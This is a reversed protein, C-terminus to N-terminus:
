DDFIGSLDDPLNDVNAGNDVVDRAQQLYGRGRGRMVGWSISDPSSGSEEGSGGAAGGRNLSPSKGADDHKISGDSSRAAHIPMQYGVAPIDLLPDGTGDRKVEGGTLLLMENQSRRPIPLSYSSRQTDSLSAVPRSIAQPSQVGTLSFLGPLFSPMIVSHTGEQLFNSSKRSGVPADEINFSGKENAEMQTRRKKLFKAKSSSRYQTHLCDRIMCGVKERAVTDEVEWWIGDQQRVFMGQNRDTGKVADMIMNVTTTKEAKSKANSYQGIFSKVISKLRKNGPSATCAKGRGCIVSTSDPVFGPPLKRKGVRDNRPVSYFSPQSPTSPSSRPSFSPNM